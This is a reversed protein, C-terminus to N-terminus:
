EETIASTCTTGFKEALKKWTEVKAVGDEIINDDAGEIALLDNINIKDYNITAKRAVTTATRVVETDYYELNKYHEDIAKYAQEYEDLVSKDSSIVMENSLLLNLKEGTYYIDYNLSVEGNEIIGERTCKEHVMKSTDVIKNNSKVGNKPDTCGTVGILFLVTVGMMVLRKM